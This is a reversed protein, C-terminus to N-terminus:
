KERTNINKLTDSFPIKKIEDPDNKKKLQNYLYIALAILFSSVFLERM